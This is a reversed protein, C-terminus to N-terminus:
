KAKPSHKIKAQQLVAKALNDPTTEIRVKKELDARNPQYDTPKLIITKPKKMPREKQNRNM